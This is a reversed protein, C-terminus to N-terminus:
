KGPGSFEDYLQPAGPKLAEEVDFVATLVEYDVKILGLAEKAIDETEAAVLAVADGVFRVKKDLVRTFGPMGGKWGPIDEWTLIARVGKLSEAKTKNIRKVIAHPHPSRLVKGHLLDPFKFDDLFKTRGTVIDTADRRPTVKGIYRYPSTM